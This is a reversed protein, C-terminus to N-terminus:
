INVTLSKELEEKEKARRVPKFHTSSLQYLIIDCVETCWDPNLLIQILHSM